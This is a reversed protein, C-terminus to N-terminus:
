RAEARLEALDDVHVCGPMDLEEDWAMNRTIRHVYGHVLLEGPMPITDVCTSTSGSHFGDSGYFDFQLDELAVGLEAAAVVDSLRAYEEETDDITVPEVLELDVEVTAGDYTVDVTGIGGAPNPSIWQDCAAAFVLLGAALLL